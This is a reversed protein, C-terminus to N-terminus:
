KRRNGALGILGVLGFALLSLASPVPVESPSNNVTISTGSVTYDTIEDGFADGLDIYSDISIDSLSAGDFDDFIIFALLFSDSQSSLDDLYSIVCLSLTGSGDDGLSFDEADGDDLSGLESTLSYDIVSLMSSDYSIDIDFNGLDCNELGSIYIGITYPAAFASASLFVAACLGAFVAAIKKVSLM